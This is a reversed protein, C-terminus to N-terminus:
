DGASFPLWHFSELRSKQICESRNGNEKELERTEIGTKKEIVCEGKRKWESNGSGNEDM